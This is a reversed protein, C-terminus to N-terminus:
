DQFVFEPTNLLAWMLDEVIQRRSEGEAAFLQGAATREEVDPLRSYIRLYLEEVIQEATLDSEALQRARGKEDTVKRHLNASNMLHLVQTVTTAEIRECPPDRNRDPRGFTDLFTSDVRHTWIENARSDPPMAEFDTTVGTIDCVADHLVEARMRTRYHRSFNRHDAVNRGSPESSLGYVHSTTITRILEKWNYNQRRFEAALEKLLPGNAPPNTARLDDIPDVLGRGMLEAWLRNVAVAAFFENDPSTLWAAFSERPDESDALSPASGFLPKPKLVEGTLPHKVQGSKAVVILEEGGSIPPSLGTGKHDVRAFYAALGFYDDQGWKEFPHHHCKACELRIGLFLQSVMSTIEEPTRRDRYFTAAGNHWTSGRATIIERVFQDYPVNRRFQDRIWHDYNLVAKIGVRYPNPRLLDAWKNSWHDAYEPRELLRDILRARKDPAPDALFQRIEDPTPLVGIVDLFARRMFRADGVPESPSIGLLQLKDWVLGDIFNHRPLQEYYQPALQEGPGAAFPIIVSCTAIVNMYRAMITAEGPIASAKMIGADDVDVIASENSQFMSMGTVDSNTGDSYHATVTLPQSQQPTLRLEQPSVEVRVLRPEQDVRRVLGEAIWSRLLRYDESDPRFREGGGHPVAATAKLLILSRDPAAVSVRRGRANRTLAAYDFEPDFGLLSLQFGNQGRAKGHCAGVSCGRAALIPQVQLEFSIPGDGRSATPCLLGAILLGFPAIRPLM